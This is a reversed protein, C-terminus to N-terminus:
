GDIRDYRRLARYARLASVGLGIAVIGAMVALPLLLAYGMGASKGSLTILGFISAAALAGAALAVLTLM